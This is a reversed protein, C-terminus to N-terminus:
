VCVCALRDVEAKPYLSWYNKFEQHLCHNSIKDMLMRRQTKDSDSEDSAMQVRVLNIAEYLPATHPIKKQNGHDQLLLSHFFALRCIEFNDAKGVEALKETLENDMALAMQFLEEKDDKLEKKLAKLNSARERVDLMLVPVNM